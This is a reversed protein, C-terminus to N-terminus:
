KGVKKKGRNQPKRNVINDRIWRESPADIHEQCYIIVAQTFSHARGTDILLDIESQITPIKDKYKKARQSGTSVGIQIADEGVLADYEFPRSELITVLRGISVGLRLMKWRPADNAKLSSLAHKIDNYLIFADNIAEPANANVVYRRRGLRRVEGIPADSADTAHQEILSICDDQLARLQDVFTEERGSLVFADLSEQSVPTRAKKREEATTFITGRGDGRDKKKRPM